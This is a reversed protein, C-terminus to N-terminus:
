HTKKNGNKLNERLYESAKLYDYITRRDMKIKNKKFYAEAEKYNECGSLYFLIFKEICKTRIETKQKEM